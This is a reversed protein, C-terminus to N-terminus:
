SVDLCFDMFARLSESLYKNKHHVIKFAREFCLPSTRIVCPCGAKVENKVSRRSIVSIGLNGAVANKITDANNCVWTSRNRM